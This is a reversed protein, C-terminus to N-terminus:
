QEITLEFVSSSRFRYKIIVLYIMSALVAYALSSVAIDWRTIIYMIEMRSVSHMKTNIKLLDPIKLPVVPKFSVTDEWM